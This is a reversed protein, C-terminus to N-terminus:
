SIEGIQSLFWKCFAEHGENSISRRYAEQGNAAIREREQDNDLLGDIRKELDEFGWKVPVYTENPVFIDPWSSMHTMDPKLLVAGFIFAEYDRVGIEGWGFPSPAIKTHFMIDRYVKTPLRGGVEPLHRKSADTPRLVTDGIMGSITGRRQLISTLQRLTEQRHFAVSKRGLNASTRLFVDVPREGHPDVFPVHYDVSVYDPFCRSVLTQWTFANYMNGLGINWSVRLKDWYAEELPYFQDFSTEDEIGFERHYFDSFIRGGYLPSQYLTKDVFIQKKLYLDVFPMLEFHTVSTSDADDMWILKGCKTRANKLFQIIPGGEQYQPGRDRLISHTPKSILCLVDCDLLHPEVGYFIEIKYGADRLRKRNARVPALTYNIISQKNALFHIKKM